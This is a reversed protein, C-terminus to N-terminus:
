GLEVWFYYTSPTPNIDSEAVIMQFDLSANNYSRAKNELLTTYVMKQNTDQLLVEQYTASESVTQKTSNVYTAISRCTSNTILKTGVYFSKHVTNNFTKNISDEKTTTMNIQTQENSLTTNDVCNIAPWNISNNRSAYVEGAIITIGWDYISYNSGDQLAFRGSVNGVYAKWRMTQSTANILMTTFSGGATTISGAPQVAPTVTTNQIITVGSPDAFTNQIIIASLMFSLLLVIAIRLTKQTTRNNM